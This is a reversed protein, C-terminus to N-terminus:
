PIGTDYCWSVLLFLKFTDHFHPKTKEYEEWIKGKKMKCARNKM